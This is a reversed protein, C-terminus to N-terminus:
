RALRRRIHEAPRVQRVTVTTNLVGDISIAVAAGGSPAAGTLTIKGTVGARSLGPEAFLLAVVNRTPECRFLHNQKRRSLDGDSDCEASYKTSDDYHSIYRVHVGRLHTRFHTCGRGCPQFELSGSVAQQPPRHSLSRGQRVWAGSLGPPVTSVSLLATSVSGTVTITATGQTGNFVAADTYAGPVTGATYPFTVSSQGSPVSIVGISGGNELITVNAGAAPAARSLVITGTSTGSPAVSAPSYALSKV